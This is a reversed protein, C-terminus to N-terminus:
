SIYAGIYVNITEDANVTLSATTELDPTSSNTVTLDVPAGGNVTYTPTGSIFGWTFSAVITYTGAPVGSVSYAVSQGLAGTGPFTVQKTYTKSGNSITLTIPFSSNFYDGTISGSITYTTTNGTAQSCGEMLGLIALIM